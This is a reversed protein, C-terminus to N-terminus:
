RKTIILEHRMVNEAKKMSYMVPVEEIVAWDYMERIDQADDYSLVFKGKINRLMLAPDEHDKRIFPRAYYSPMSYYPPDCYFLTRSTDVSDIIARFDENLIYVGRLRRHMEYIKSVANQFDRSEGIGYGFSAGNTGVCKGAFANKTVWLFRAARTVEDGVGMLTKEREFDEQSPIRFQLKKTLIEPKDRVCRLFNALETDADNVIEIKSILQPKALLVWCAGCFPEVYLRYRPFRKIIERRLLHKGGPWRLPNNV